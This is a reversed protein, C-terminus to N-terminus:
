PHFWTKGRIHQIRMTSCGLVWSQLATGPGHHDMYLIYVNICQYVLPLKWHFCTNSTWLNCPAEFDHLWFAQFISTKLHNFFAQKLNSGLGLLIIRYVYSSRKIVTSIEAYTSTRVYLFRFCQFGIVLHYNDLELDRGVLTFQHIRSYRVVWLTLVLNKLM